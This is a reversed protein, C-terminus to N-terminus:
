VALIQQVATEATECAGEMYGQASLSCCEGAFFLNQWPEQEVGHFQSYQGVLYCSYSSYFPSQKVWNMLLAKQYVRDIDPFINQFSAVFKKAEVEPQDTLQQCRDGGLYNTILGAKDTSYRGTEWTNQWGLDTFVSGNSQYKTRWLRDSYSTILKANRGYGLERIAKLKVPPLDVQLDIHRLINFPLTLLIKAYTEERSANGQRLSVRYRGDSTRKIAELATGTSIFNQLKEALKQPLQGNGGKIAYREDSEGYLTLEQDDTSILFLLNLASQESAERGYEGVYAVEILRRLTPDPCYKNLYQSISLQDAQQVLANANKYTFEGFSAVDKAIQRVLPKLGQAIDSFALKHGNFFWIETTLNGDSAALDVLTLEMEQVLQRMHKHGTDIFEGGLEATINTGLAQSKSLIRGGIRDSAEIIKIPVNSQWLRYGATLGALGAGVILVTDPNPPVKGTPTSCSHLLSATTVGAGFLSLRLLQRRSILEGVELKQRHAQQITRCARRLTRLLPTRAM